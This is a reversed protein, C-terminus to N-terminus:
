LSVEQQAGVAYNQQILRMLPAEVCVQQQTLAPPRMVPNPPISSNYYLVTDRKLAKCMYMCCGM